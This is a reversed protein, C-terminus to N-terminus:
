HEHKVDVISVNWGNQRCVAAVHSDWTPEDKPCGGVFVDIALYRLVTSGNNEASHLINRRTLVVDGARVPHAEREPGTFLTGCGEIVYWLQECDDHKHPATKEGPKLVAFFVEAAESDQRDIILDTCHTPFCYRKLSDTRYVSPKHM